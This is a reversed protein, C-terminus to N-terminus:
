FPPELIQNYGHPLRDIVADALSKHAAYQLKELDHREEIQGMGINEAVSMEYRMFDQCVVSIQRYLDEPNYDRLDVGDLFIQGSGPEYLRTILKVITTKGQGNNGILAIREGAEWRMNFRNLM